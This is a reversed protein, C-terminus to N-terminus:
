GGRRINLFLDKLGWGEPGNEFDWGWGNPSDGEVVLWYVGWVGGHEETGVEFGL